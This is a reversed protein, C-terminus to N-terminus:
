LATTNMRCNQRPVKAEPALLRPTMDTSPVQHSLTIDTPPLVNARPKPSFDLDFMCSLGMRTM